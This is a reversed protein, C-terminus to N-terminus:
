VLAEMAKKRAKYAKLYAARKQDYKKNNAICCCEAGCYKNNAKVPKFARGCQPCSKWGEPIEVPVPKVIPQTAKWRGYHVGFGDKECQIMEQSLKDLEKKKAM